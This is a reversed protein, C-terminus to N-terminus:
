EEGYPKGCNPCVNGRKRAAGCNPCLRAARKKQKLFYEPAAYVCIMQAEEKRKAPAPERGNGSKEDIGDEAGTKTEEAHNLPYPVPSTNEEPVEPIVASRDDATWGPQKMEPGGYVTSMPTREKKKFIRM